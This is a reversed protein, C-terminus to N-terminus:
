TDCTFGNGLPVCKGDPWGFERWYEVFGLEEVVEAFRPDRRFEAYVPLDQWWSQFFLFKQQNMGIEIADFALEFDGLEIGYIMATNPDDELQDRLTSIVRRRNEAEDRARYFMEPQLDEDKGIKEACHPPLARFAAMAQEETGATEYHRLRLMHVNCSRDGAEEGLDALELARSAEGRALYAWGATVIARPNLPNNRWSRMILKFAADGRGLTSLHNAYNDLMLLNNPEMALTDRWQLEQDIFRNDVGEYPPVWIKYAMGLTPCRDLAQRAVDM